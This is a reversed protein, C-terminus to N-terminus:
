TRLMSDSITFSWSKDLYMKYNQLKTIQGPVKRAKKKQDGIM